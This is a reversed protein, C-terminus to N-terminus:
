PRGNGANAEKSFSNLSVTKREATKQDVSM